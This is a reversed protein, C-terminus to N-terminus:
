WDNASTLTNRHYEYLSGHFQNGGSKTVLAIQAGSSRGQDANANTTTVRFEQLSDPTVRLVSFFANGSRSDGGYQDQDNVDVGDLTVNAQDFRGGNVSGGSTVGPQLSLLGVVNRANLPLDRVQTSNFAIGITADITNVASAEASVQVTETVAGVEKFRLAINSSTNVLIDLSQSVIAKFGPKEAKLDYLGPQLQPFIFAGSDDSKDSRIVGTTKNTLTVVAGPVAADSPDTVTGSLVTSTQALSLVPLCLLLLLPLYAELKRRLAFKM